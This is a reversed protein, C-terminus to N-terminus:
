TSLKGRIEDRFKGREFRKQFRVIMLSSKERRFKGKTRIKICSLTIRRLFTKDSLARMNQKLLFKTCTRGDDM